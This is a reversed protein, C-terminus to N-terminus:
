DANDADEGDNHDPGVGEWIHQCKVPAGKPGSIQSERVDSLRLDRVILNANYVGIAAREFKQTFIVNEILEGVDHYEEYGKQSIYRDLTERGICLYSCLGIKTYPREHPILAVEHKSSRPLESKYIPNSDCWEFYDCAMQWLLDPSSIRKGSGPKKKRHWFNNGPKFKGEITRNEDEKM